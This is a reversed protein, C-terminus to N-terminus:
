PKQSRHHQVTPGDQALRPMKPVRWFYRGGGSHNTFSHKCALDVERFEQQGGAGASASATAVSDSASTGSSASSSTSAASAAAPWKLVGAAM